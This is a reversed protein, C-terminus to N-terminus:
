LQHKSKQYDDNKANYASKKGTHPYLYWSEDGFLKLLKSDDMDLAKLGVQVLIDSAIKRTTPKILKYFPVTMSKNSETFLSRPATLKEYFKNISIKHYTKDEPATNTTDTTPKEEEKFTLGFKDKLFTYGDITMVLNGDEISIGNGTQEAIFTKFRKM